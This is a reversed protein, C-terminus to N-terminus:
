FKNVSLILSVEQYELCPIRSAGPPVLWVMKRFLPEASEQEKVRGGGLSAKGVPVVIQSYDFQTTLRM